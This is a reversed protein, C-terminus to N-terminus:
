EGEIQRLAQIFHRRVQPDSRIRAKVAKWTRPCDKYEIEVLRHIARDMVKKNEATVKLGAEELEEKLHRFYCSM